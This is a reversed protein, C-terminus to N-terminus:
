FQIYFHSMIIMIVYKRCIGFLESGLVGFALSIVSISSQLRFDPQAFVLNMIIM